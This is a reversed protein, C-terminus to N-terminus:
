DTPLEATNRQNISKQNSTRRNITRQNKSNSNMREMKVNNKTNTRVDDRNKRAVTRRNTPKIMTRPTVNRPNLRSRFGSNQKNYSNYGRNNGTEPCDPCIRQEVLQAGLCISEFTKLSRTKNQYSEPCSGYCSSWSSWETLKSECIEPVRNFDDEEMYSPNVITSPNPQFDDNSRNSDIEMPDSDEIKPEPNEGPEPYSEVPYQPQRYPPDTEYRISGVRRDDKPAYGDDLRSPREDYGGINGKRFSVQGTQCSISCDNTEELILFSCYDINAPNILQRTRKMTGAGCNPNPQNRNLFCNSWESWLTTQCRLQEHPEKGNREIGDQNFDPPRENEIPNFSGLERNDPDEESIDGPMNRPRQQPDSFINDPQSGYVFNRELSDDPEEEEEVAMELRCAKKSPFLRQRVVKIRAFPKIKSENVNYFPSNDPHLNTLQYIKERFKLPFKNANEYGSGSDTGADYLYLNMQKEDIWSGNKLCLEM